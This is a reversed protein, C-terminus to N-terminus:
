GHVKSTDENRDEEAKRAMHNLFTSIQDELYTIRAILLPITNILAEMNIHAGDHHRACMLLIDSKTRGNYTNRKLM